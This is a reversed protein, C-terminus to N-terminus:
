AKTFVEADQETVPEWKIHSSSISGVEQFTFNLGSETIKNVKFRYVKHLTFYQDVFNPHFAFNCTIAENAFSPYVLFDVMKYQYLVSDAIWSTLSYPSKEKRFINSTFELLVNLHESKDAGVQKTNELMQNYYNKWIPYWKNNEPLTSDFFATYNVEHRCNIKWQSLYGIEGVRPRAEAFATEYTDTSYFVSKFKLNARGNQICLTRPPYSFTSILSIDEKNEDITFRVRYSTLLNVTNSPITGIMNPFILAKEFFLSRIEEQAFAAKNIEFLSQLNGRLKKIDPLSNLASEFEDPTSHKYSM